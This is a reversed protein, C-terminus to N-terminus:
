DHRTAVVVRASATVPQSGGIRLFRHNQLAGLLRAQIQLDLDMIEGILLTGRGARELAGPVIRGSEESGFLAVAAQETSLAGISVETLPQDARPSLAHLYRATCRKGAGAEGSILVPSDHGAIRRIQERLERMASSRGVPEVAETAAAAPKEQLGRGSELAREVTLLLR